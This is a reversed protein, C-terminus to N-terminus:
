TLTVKRRITASRGDRGFIEIQLTAQLKKLRRLAKRTANGVVLATFRQSGSLPHRFGDEDVTVPQRDLWGGPHHLLKRLKGPVVLEWYVACPRDCSVNFRFGSAVFKKLRLRKQIALQGRPAAACRKLSALEIAAQIIEDDRGECDVTKGGDGSADIRDLGTGGVFTDTGDNGILLDDGAGGVLSDDGDGGTLVDNGDGGDLSAGGDAALLKDDGQDGNLFGIGALEDNGAGGNVTPVTDIQGGSWSDNGDGLNITIVTVAAGDCILEHDLASCGIGATVSAAADTLRYSATAADYAISVANSEGDAGAFTLTAGSVSATSAAASSASIMLMIGALLLVRRTM